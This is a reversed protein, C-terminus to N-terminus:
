RFCKTSTDTGTSSAATRRGSENISFTRCTTDDYQGKGSIATATASYGTTTSAVSMTYFGSDSDALLGLGGSNHPLTISSTNTVYTGYQMYHKEQTAALRLLATTADARQSRQLYRRYSPIAVTALIAVVVIVTLLEMLTVGRQARKMNTTM